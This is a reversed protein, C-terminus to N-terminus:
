DLCSGSVRGLEKGNARLVVVEAKLRELRAQCSACGAVHATLETPM